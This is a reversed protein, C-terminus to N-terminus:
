NRSRKARLVLIKGLTGDYGLLKDGPNIVVIEGETDDYLVLEYRM